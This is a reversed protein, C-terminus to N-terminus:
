RRRRDRRGLAEEFAADLATATAEVGFRSAEREVSQRDWGAELCQSIAKALEATSPDPGVLVGSAASVVEPVGGVSTSVVPTGCATAELIVMPVGEIESALVLCDSACYLETLSQQSLVGVLQIHDSLGLNQVQQRLEQEMSGSGAIVLTVQKGDNRLQAVADVIRTQRKIRELRGVHVIVRTNEALNMRRRVRLRAEPDFRFLSLDVANPIKIVREPRVGWAANKAVCADDIAVVLDAKRHAWRLAADYLRRVLTNEGWRFTPRAL